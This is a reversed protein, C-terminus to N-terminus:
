YQKALRTRERVNFFRKAMIYTTGFVLTHVMLSRTSTQGSFLVGRSEPPLTLISGPSLAAFLGTAILVDKTILSRLTMPKNVSVEEM